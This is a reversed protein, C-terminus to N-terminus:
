GVTRQELWFLNAKLRSIHLLYLLIKQMTPMDWQEQESESYKAALGCEGFLDLWQQGSRYCVGVGATNAGLKKTLPALLHSSTIHFILHSPLGDLLIGDCLNEFVSVRGGPTLHRTASRLVSQVNKRTQSYSDAVLHHLLWNMFIIDFQQNALKSDMEDVSALIISKRPNPQNRGILLESNDLVVCRAAPYRHLLRDSFIGNGGGLDLFSFDGEPFDRDICRTIMGWREAFMDDTDFESLQEDSLQRLELQM